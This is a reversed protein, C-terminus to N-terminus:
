DDPWAARVMGGPSIEARGALELEVLAALVAGIPAGTQRAIEDQSVPSPSLLAAVQERIANAERGATEAACPEYEDAPPSAVSPRQAGGLIELVDAASEILAAGERILRNAGKARPDLPSGPTAMVERGQEGALRATILSGSKMAAEVVVVGLSLGSILRNRRPFDKATPVAGLPSETVLAGQEGILRHLDAHEPPYVHDVGGALVAATGTALAGAHAAGDIGRALGSVIIVGNAGLEAALERAFRAGVASASRSGVIACCPRADLDLSGLVTIVPPAPDLAALLDPFDPECAALVRAGLRETRAIEREAADRAVPRLPSARGGRRSLEPLAQLADAANGYRAILKAFTVPGVQPTRALRLWDAREDPTLERRTM